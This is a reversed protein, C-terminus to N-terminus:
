IVTDISVNDTITKLTPDIKKMAIFINLHVLAIKLKSRGLIPKIELSVPRTIIKNVLITQTALQLTREIHTTDVDENQPPKAM